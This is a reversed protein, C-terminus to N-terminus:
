FALDIGRATLFPALQQDLLAEARAWDVQDPSEIGQCLEALIQDQVRGAAQADAYPIPSYVVQAYRSRFKGPFRNELEHEVQKRLLFAADGVKDRMEVFNELAMDAIADGNPKRLRDFAAFVEATAGGEDLLRALVACDELGCNLGQGFFPVIAHAADGVLLARDAHHWPRCRVTGLVGVPNALLEAAWGRGLLPIADPYHAQFFAELKAPTDLQDFSDEGGNPLYVTGTFSGDLNALGMLMHHGRPWIHLAEGNMAYGGAPAAPFLLEKYGHTIVDMQVHGSAGAATVVAERVKSPAGDAGFVRAADARVEGASTEFTLRMAALDLGTLAHEFHLTVGAQEAQDLLFMNLEGRSISHNHESDDKGYPQYALEGAVSHMMRGLVPVTLTELVQERVGILDLGRLGRATLVLNISRGGDLASARMDPRKEFAEVRHGRKALLTALVCGVPGAGVVVVRDAM